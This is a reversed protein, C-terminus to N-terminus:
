LSEVESPSDDRARAYFNPVGKKAPTERLDMESGSENLKEVHHKHKVLDILDDMDIKDPHTVAGATDEAKNDLFAKLQRLEELTVISKM